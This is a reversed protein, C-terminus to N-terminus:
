RIAIAQVAALNEALTPHKTVADTVAAIISSALSQDNPLADNTREFLMRDGQVGLFRVGIPGVASEIVDFGASPREAREVEYDRVPAYM